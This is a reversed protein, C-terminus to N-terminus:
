REGVLPTKLLVEPLPAINEPIFPNQILNQRTNRRSLAWPAAASWDFLIVM